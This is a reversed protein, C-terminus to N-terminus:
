FYISLGLMFRISSFGLEHEPLIFPEREGSTPFEKEPVVFPQNLNLDIVTWISLGPFLYYHCAAKLQLGLLNDSYSYYLNGDSENDPNQVNYYSYGFSWEPNGLLLGAGAIVEFKRSYFRDTNLIAYEAYLRHEM